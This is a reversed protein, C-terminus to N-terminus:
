NYNTISELKIISINQVSTVKVKVAAGFCWRRWRGTHTCWQIFLTKKNIKCSWVDKPVAPVDPVTPVAPEIPLAPVGPVLPVAPVMPVAPVVPVGPKAPEIPLSPTWTLHIFSCSSPQCCKIAKEFKLSFCAVSTAIADNAEARCGCDIMTAKTNVNSCAHRHNNM